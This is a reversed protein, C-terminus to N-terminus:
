EFFILKKWIDIVIDLKLTILFATSINKIIYLFNKIEGHIEKVKQTRNRYKM